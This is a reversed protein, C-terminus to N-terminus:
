KSGWIALLPLGVAFVSIFVGLLGDFWWVIHRQYRGYYLGLNPSMYLRGVLYPVLVFACTMVLRYVTSM